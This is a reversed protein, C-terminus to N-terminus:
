FFPKPGMRLCKVGGLLKQYEYHRHDGIVSEWVEEAEGRKRIIKRYYPLNSGAPPLRSIKAFLYSFLTPTTYFKM